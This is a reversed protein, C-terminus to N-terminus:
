KYMEDLVITSNGDQDLEIGNCEVIKNKCFREYFYVEECFNYLEKHKPLTANDFLIFKRITKITKLNQKLSQLLVPNLNKNIYIIGQYKKLKSTNKITNMLELNVYYVNSQKTLDLKFSNIFSQIDLVYFSKINTFITKLKNESETTLYINM